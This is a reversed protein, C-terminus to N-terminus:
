EAHSARWKYLADRAVSQYEYDLASVTAIWELTDVLPQAKALILSNHARAKLDTAISQATWTELERLLEATLEQFNDM